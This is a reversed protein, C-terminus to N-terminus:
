SRARCRIGSGATESSACIAHMVRSVTLDGCDRASIRWAHVDGNAFCGDHRVRRNRGKGPAATDLGSQHDSALVHIGRRERSARGRKRGPERCEHVAVVAVCPDRNEFAPGQCLAGANLGLRSARVGAEHRGTQAMAEHVDTVAM